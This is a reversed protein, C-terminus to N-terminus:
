HATLADARADAPGVSRGDSRGDTLKSSIKSGAELGQLTRGILISADHASATAWQAETLGSLALQKTHENDGGHHM